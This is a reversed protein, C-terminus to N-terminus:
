VDSSKKTERKVERIDVAAQGRGGGQKKKLISM